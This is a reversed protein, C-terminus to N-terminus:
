KKNWRKCGEIYEIFDEVQAEEPWMNGKFWILDPKWHGPCKEVMWDVYTYSMETIIPKGNKFLFDYAMSQSRLKQSIEFATKVCSIDIKEHSVDFNGSGSARFDNPRNFRRYGFARNGILTVRTDYENNPIFEQFYIYGKEPRWWSMPLPPYIGKLGFKLGHKIRSLMVILERKNKPPFVRKKFENITLPFLGKNFMRDILAFADQKSDVKLVNSSGAGSSLKFIKPYDTKQAWEIASKVDWFIWSEPTPINLAKFIYHQIIKEDYHWCTNHDPFVPISLYYEITHLIQYAKIKDKHNHSWRWMVGDCDKVQELTDNRNLDVWKVEVNRARLFKAWKRSFSKEGNNNDPHIAIKM